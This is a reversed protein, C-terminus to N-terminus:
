SMSYFYGWQYINDINFKEVPSFIKCIIAKKDKRKNLLNDGATLLKLFQGIIFKINIFPLSHKVTRSIASRNCLFLSATFFSSWLAPWFGILLSASYGISAYLAMLSAGGGPRGGFAFGSGTFGTLFVFFYGYVGGLYEGITLAFSLIIASYLHGSQWPSFISNLTNFAGPGTGSKIARQASQLFCNPMILSRDPM